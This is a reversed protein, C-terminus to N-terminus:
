AKLLEPLVVDDGEELSTQRDDDKLTWVTGLTERILYM